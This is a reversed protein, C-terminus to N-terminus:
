TTAMVSLEANTVPLAMSHTTLIQFQYRFFPSVPVELIGHKMKCCDRKVFQISVVMKLAVSFCLYMNPVNKRMHEQHLDWTDKVKSYLVPKEKELKLKADKSGKLFVKLVDNEEQYESSNVGKFLKIETSACPTGDVRSIYVDIASDLNRELMEQNVGSDSLCSGNLTSPIFLNAHGLALCGNQLEVRNRFTTGSNRSTVLTVVTESELHRRTWWYQVEKHPPGEDFGGDVRICEIRKREETSPNIFTPLVTDEKELM